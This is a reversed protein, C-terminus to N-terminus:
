EWVPLDIDVVIPKNLNFSTGGHFSNSKIAANVVCTEKRNLRGALALQDASPSSPDGGMGRTGQLTAPPGVWKTDITGPTPALAAVVGPSGDNDLKADGARSSIDQLAMKGGNPAPDDWPTVSEMMYGERGPPVPGLDWRARAVGRGEHIHGFVHLKPRVRWLAQRLGPCGVSENIRDVLDLLDYPPCHTVLVDTDLPIADWIHMGLDHDYTFAWSGFKPSLPSAFLKFTTHPGDPSSLKITRSEHSLYTLTTAQSLLGRCQEPTHAQNFFWHAFDRTFLTDLTLDHNGAVVIKCEFDARDLWNLTSQLESYGGMNTLDGAHILVDGKPLKINHNHTDSICVFRTRRTRTTAASGASGASGGTQINSGEM